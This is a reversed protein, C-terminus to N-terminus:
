GGRQYSGVYVRLGQLRDQLLRVAEEAMKQAHLEPQVLRLALMPAPSDLRIALRLTFCREQFGAYPVCAFVIEHPLADQTGTAQVRELDSREAGMSQVKTESIKSAEIKIARVAAIAAALTVPNGSGNKPPKICENWDSMWDALERQAVPKSTLDILAQYEATCRPAWIATNQAHGPEIGAAHGLDLVALAKLPSQEVFVAAHEIAGPTDQVYRTFEALVSSVYVGRARRRTPMTSELDHLNWGPPLAVQGLRGDPDMLSNAQEIALHLNNHVGHEAVEQLRTSM